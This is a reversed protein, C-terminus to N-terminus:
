KWPRDRLFYNDIVESLMYRIVPETEWSEQLDLGVFVSREESHLTRSAARLVSNSRERSQRFRAWRWAGESGFRLALNQGELEVNLRGSPGSIGASILRDMRECWHMESSALTTYSDGFGIESVGSIEFARDSEAGWLLIRNSRVALDLLLNQDRTDIADLDALWLFREALKSKQFSNDQLDQVEDFGDASEDGNSVQFGAEVLQAAWAEDYPLLKLRPLGQANALRHPVLTIPFEFRGVLKDGHSGQQGSAKGGDGAIIELSMKLKAVPKADDHRPLRLKLRIPKSDKSQLRLQGRDVVIRDLTAAWNVVSNAPFAMNSIATWELLERHRDKEGDVGAEDSWFYVSRPASIRLTQTKLEPTTEQGEATPVVSISSVLLAWYLAWQLTRLPEAIM